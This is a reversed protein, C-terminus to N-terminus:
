CLVLADAYTFVLAWEEQFDRTDFLLCLGDPRPSHKNQCLAETHAQGVTVHCEQLFKDRNQISGCVLPSAGFNWNTTCPMNPFLQEWLHIYISHLRSVSLKEKKKKKRGEKEKFFFFSFSGKFHHWKTGHWSKKEVWRFYFRYICSYIGSFDKFHAWNNLFAFDM